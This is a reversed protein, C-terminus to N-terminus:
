APWNRLFADLDNLSPGRGRRVMYGSSAVGLALSALPTMNLSQGLVFGANFHDGAGTTTLPTETYPGPVHWADERTACVACERPHVAVVGLALEQRIRTALRKLGEANTDSEGIGLIRGVTQAEKLNLGLITKGHSQFRKITLLASKIDSDSRKAPDALDFFFVRQDRSPLNPLVKDLFSGLIDTMAPIMTWNVMAILDLRSFLDFFKGEGITAVIKEYTIHELVATNNLMIKGDTFELANTAGPDCLSVAETKRAFEQFVPLVEPSGLAGIYRTKMGATVLANAMIPGNGGLRDERPYLEINTSKGAAEDIRRAFETITSIPMFDDGPGSRSAVPTVIRDVFGDLGVLAFRSSIRSRKAELEELTHEKFKM